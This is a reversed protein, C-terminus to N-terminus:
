FIHDQTKGPCDLDRQDCHGLDVRNAVDYGGHQSGELDEPPEWHCLLKKNWVYIFDWMTSWLIPAKILSIIKLFYRSFTADYHNLIISICYMEKSMLNMWSVKVRCANQTSSRGDPSRAGSYSHHTGHQSPYRQPAAWHRHGSAAPASSPGPRLRESGSPCSSRSSTRCGTAGVGGATRRATLCLMSVQCRAWASM